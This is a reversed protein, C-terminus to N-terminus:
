IKQASPIAGSGGADKVQTAIVEDSLHLDFDEAGELILVEDSNLHTCALVSQYAQYVYGQISPTAQRKKDAVLGQSM